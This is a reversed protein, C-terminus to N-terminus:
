GQAPLSPAASEINYIICRDDAFVRSYSENLHRRLERYHELWWYATNPLLLFKAGRARHEDLHAIAEADSNPITASYLGDKGMPFHWAQRGDIDLFRHIGNSVVAVAADVPIVDAAAKRVHPVLYDFAEAMWPSLESEDVLGFKCLTHGAVQLFVMKKEIPWQKWAHRSVEGAPPPEGTPHSSHLRTTRLYEASAGDDPVKIFEFIKRFTGPTDKVLDRYLITLCREPERQAFAM